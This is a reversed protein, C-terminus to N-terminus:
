LKEYTICVHRKTGTPLQFDKSHLTLKVKGKKWTYEKALEEGKIANNYRTQITEPIKYKLAVKKFRDDYYGSSSIESIAKLGHKDFEYFTGDLNSSTAIASLTPTFDTWGSINTAVLRGMENKKVEERSMGFNVRFLDFTYNTHAITLVTQRTVSKKSNLFTVSATLTVPTPAKSPNFYLTSTGLWKQMTAYWGKEVKVVPSIHPTSWTFRVSDGEDYLAHIPWALVTLTSGTDLSTYFTGTNFTRSSEWLSVNDDALQIGGISTPPNPDVNGQSPRKGCSFM